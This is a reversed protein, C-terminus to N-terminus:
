LGTLTPRTKGLHRVHCPHSSARENMRTTITTMQSLNTHPIDNNTTVFLYKHITSNPPCHCKMVTYKQHYIIMISVEQSVTYWIDSKHMLICLPTGTWYWYGETVSFLSFGACGEVLLSKQHDGYHRTRILSRTAHSCKIFPLPGEVRKSHIHRLLDMNTLQRPPLPPLHRAM